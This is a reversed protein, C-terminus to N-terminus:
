VNQELREKKLHKMTYHLIEWVYTKLLHEKFCYSSNLEDKIKSFVKRLEREQLSNLSFISEKEGKFLRLFYLQQKLKSTLISSNFQCCYSPGEKGNLVIKYNPSSLFHVSSHENRELEKNEITRFAFGCIFDDEEKAKDVDTTAENVMKM